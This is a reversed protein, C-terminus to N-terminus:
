ERQDNELELVKGKIKIDEANRFFGKLWAGLAVFISALVLGGIIAILLNRLEDSDVNCYFCFHSKGFHDKFSKKISM